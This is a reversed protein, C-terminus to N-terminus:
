SEYVKVSVPQNLLPEWETVAQHYHPTKLHAEYAETSEWRQIVAYDGEAGEEVVPGFDYSVLGADHARAAQVLRHASEEFADLTEAKVSVQVIVGIM